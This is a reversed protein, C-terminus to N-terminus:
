LLIHQSYKVNTPNDTNDTNLILGALNRMALNADAEAQTKRKKRISIMIKSCRLPPNARSTKEQNSFVWEGCKRM